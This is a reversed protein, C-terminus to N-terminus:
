NCSTASRVANVIYTNSASTSKMLATVQGCGGHDRYVPGAYESFNGEDSACGEATYNSCLKIKMWKASGTNNEFIACTPTDNSAGNTGKIYTFLTGKRMADPLREAYYLNYGTGCVTAAAVVAEPNDEAINRTERDADAAVRSDPQGVASVQPVTLGLFGLAVATVTVVSKTAFKVRM